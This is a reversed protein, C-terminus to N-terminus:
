IINFKNKYKEFSVDDLLKEQDKIEDNIRQIKHDQHERISSLIGSKAIFFVIAVVLVLFLVISCVIVGYPNDIIRELLPTLNLESNLNTAM